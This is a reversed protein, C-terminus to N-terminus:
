AGSVQSRRGSALDWDGSVLTWAGLLNSTTTAPSAAVGRDIAGSVSLVWWLGMSEAQGNAQGPGFDNLYLYLPWKDYTVQLDGDGRRATGLLAPNVGPGAVPRTVGKPLLLPPWAAQCALFCVSSGQRDPAYMYLTMGAGDLIAGLGKIVTARVEYVPAGGAAAASGCATATLVCVAALVRAVWTLSARVPVPRLAM